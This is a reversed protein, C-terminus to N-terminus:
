TERREEKIAPLVVRFATGQGPTSTSTIDGGHNKVIAYTISLGLGTGKEASKTTFFPEFIRKQHEPLIGTGNDAVEVVVWANRVRTRIAIRKGAQAHSVRADLADRANGLLNLFVQELQFPQGIVEPLSDALDLEVLIGHNKLQTGIIDLSSHIIGNVQVPYGPERTTDRSFVRLHEVTHSMRAVMDLIRKFSAKIQDETAGIGEELRLYYDEATASIGGLPQNLEHAVGAALQGLSVLRASQLLQMQLERAELTRALQAATEDLLTREQSESLSVACHLTLQGRERQGWALPRDYSHARAIVDGLTHTEADLAIAVHGAPGLVDLLARGATAAVDSPTRADGLAMRLNYLFQLNQIQADMREREIIEHTLNQNVSFLQRNADSLARNSTALQRDRKVLRTSLYGIASLLVTMVGVFWPQRWVPPLVTFTILAPTPDINFNRDRARVEFTHKGSPLSMYTITRDQSFLSWIGGNLRYSFQLHDGTEWPDVGQWAINVNGPQSVEKLATTIKTSPPYKDPRYRVSSCRTPYPQFSSRGPMHRIQLDNTFDINNIWLSGDKSQHLKGSQFPLASHIWTQGDFRAFGKGTEVWVSGDQTQYISQIDNDPLGSRVDHHIWETGNHQFVGGTKTGVWFEKSATAYIYKIYSQAIKPLETVKTWTQGDFNFFEHGGGVWIKGDPTEGMGCPWPWAPARAPREYFWTHGDFRVFGGRHEPRPMEGLQGGFWLMGDSTEFISQHHIRWALEPHTQITWKDSQFQATAATNDHSGAAWLDGKRTAFLAVPTDILGDETAYQTWTNGDFRVVNLDWNLFWLSGDPTECQFLLGQHTLWKEDTYDLRAVEKGQGAIWVVGDSAELLDITATWKPIPTRDEAYSMWNGDKYVFLGGFEGVWVAGDRTELISFHSRRDGKFSKPDFVMWTKGDFRNIGARPDDSITWVNRDRTQWIRPKRGTKLGNDDSFLQWHFHDTSDRNEIYRLIKGWDRQGFWLGGDRDEYVEYVIFERRLVPTKQPSISIEIPLLVHNRQITLVMCSDMGAVETPQMQQSLIRDGARLGAIDGVGGSMVDLVFVHNSPAYFIRAGILSELTGFAVLDDPVIVTRIDPMFFAIVHEMGRSVYFTQKQTNICLAGWATGAWLNQKRDELLDYIHVDIDTSPFIKHWKGAKFRHIGRNTGAYIEGSQTACLAWVEEGVLGDSQTYSTWVMGDYKIVGYETGFWMTGDKGEAMCRLGLGNLETFLKWRWPELLPDAYSPQYPKVAWIPSGFLALFITLMGISKHCYPKMRQEDIPWLNFDFLRWQAIVLRKSTWLILCSIPMHLKIIVLIM